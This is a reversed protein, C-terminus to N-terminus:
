KKKWESDGFGGTKKRAVLRDDSRVEIVLIGSGMISGKPVDAWDLKLLKGQLKGHAVHSWMPDSASAEGYWWIDNGLQRIYYSGGSDSEWAGTLNAAQAAIAGVGLCVALIMTGIARKMM